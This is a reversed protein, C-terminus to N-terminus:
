SRDTKPGQLIHPTEGIVEEPAYGTMKTFAPNVYVIQPGPPDPRATMIIVSENSQEIATKLLRLQEEAQNHFASEPRSVVVRQDILERERAADRRHEAKKIAYFQREKM